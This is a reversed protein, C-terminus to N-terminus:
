NVLQITWGDDSQFVIEKRSVEEVTWLEDVLWGDANRQKVYFTDGAKITRRKVPRGAGKRAGGWTSTTM